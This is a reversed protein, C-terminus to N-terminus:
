ESLILRIEGNLEHGSSGTRSEEVMHVWANIYPLNEHECRVELSKDEVKQLQTILDRVNM